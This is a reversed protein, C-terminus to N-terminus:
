RGGGEPVRGLFPECHRAFRESAAEAFPEFHALYHQTSAISVHGMYISLAPLRAQVDVGARYWRLLAAHAFTHRLDHVRPLAGTATRVGAQRFLQRLGQALGAGTYAGVGHRSNCLLPAEVSHALQRRAVLFAEMERAADSSLPVLRSKHFKSARIALTKAVPDYDGLTLRILERRRLGATHLVVIALRFVARHLPSTSAPGLADAARLLRVIDEDTFLYARQSPLPQPFTSLDPVFCGPETRQRYLSLARVVGMWRRRVQPTLQAIAACWPTFTEATLDADHAALFRDLHVLVRREGQCGCGLALKLALHQVVVPGLRSAFDTPPSM